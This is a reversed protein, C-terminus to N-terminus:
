SAILLIWTEEKGETRSLCVSHREKEKYSLLYEKKKKERKGAAPFLAKPEGGEGRSIGALPLLLKGGGECLSAKGGKEPRTASSV